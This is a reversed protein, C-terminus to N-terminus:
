FGDQIKEKTLLALERFNLTINIQTPMGNDFSTFQGQPAYQVTM